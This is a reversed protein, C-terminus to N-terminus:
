YNFGCKRSYKPSTYSPLSRWIVHLTYLYKPVKLENQLKQQSKNAFFSFYQQRLDDGFHNMYISSLHYM